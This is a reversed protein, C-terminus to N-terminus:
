QKAGVIGWAISAAVGCVFLISFVIKGVDSVATWYIFGLFALFAAAIEISLILFRQWNSM